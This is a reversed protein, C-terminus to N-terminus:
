EGTPPLQAAAQAERRLEEDLAPMHISALDPLGGRLWPFDRNRAEPCMEAYERSLFTMDFNVNLIAGADQRLISRSLRSMDDCFTPFDFTRISYENALSTVYKNLINRHGVGHARRFYDQLVDSHAILEREFRSVFENYASHLKLEPRHVCKLAAVMLGAQLSRVREANFEAASMCESARAQSTMVVLCALVLAVARRLCFAPVARGGARRGIDRRMMMKMFHPPRM